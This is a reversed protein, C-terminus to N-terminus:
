QTGGLGRLTPQWSDNACEREGLVLVLRDLEPERSRVDFFFTWVNERSPQGFRKAFVEHDGTTAVLPEWQQTISDGLDLTLHLNVDLFRAVNEGREIYRSLWFVSDAVRSLM